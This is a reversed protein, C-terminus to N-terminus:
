DTRMGVISPINAIWKDVLKDPKISVVKSWRDMGQRMRDERRLMGILCDTM